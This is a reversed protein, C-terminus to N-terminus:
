YPFCVKVWEFSCSATKLDPWYSGSKVSLLQRLCCKGFKRPWRCGAGAAALWQVWFYTGIICCCSICHHSWCNSGPEHRSFLWHWCLVAGPYWSAWNSFKQELAEPQLIEWGLLRLDKLPLQWLSFRCCICYMFLMGQEKSSYTRESRPKKQKLRWLAKDHTM